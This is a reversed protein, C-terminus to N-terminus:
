PNCSAAVTRAYGVDPRSRELNWSPKNPEILRVGDYHCYFQDRTNAFDLRARANPKELTEGWAALRSGIPAVRGYATPVVKGMWKGGYTDWGVSSILNIGLWPDAVIPYAFGGGVHDVTQVVTNGVIEYETPVDAGNADKAWPAAFGGTWAGDADYIDVGGNEDLVLDGAARDQVVYEYDSPASADDLVTVIVVSGDDQVVPLTSSGDKNEFVAGSEDISSTPAEDSEPLSVSVSRDLYSLSVGEDADTAVEVQVDAVTQDYLKDSSASPTLSARSETVFPAVEAIQGLQGPADSPDAVAATATSGVIAASVAMVGLTSMFKWSKQEM